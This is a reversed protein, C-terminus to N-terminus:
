AQAGEDKNVSQVSNASTESVITADSISVIGAQKARAKIEDIDAKHLMDTNQHAVKKVGGLGARDLLDRAADLRLKAPTGNDLMIQEIVRLAYPALEIIEEQVALVDAAIAGEVMGLYQKVMPDNRTYRVMQASVGHVQAIDKDKMGIAVKEAIRRHISKVKKLQYTTPATRGTDVDFSRDLPSGM